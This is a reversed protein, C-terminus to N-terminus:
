LIKDDCNRELYPLPHPLAAIFVQLGALLQERQLQSLQAAATALRHTDLVELAQSLAQQGPPSLWILTKRGDMDDPQRTLLGDGELVAVKASLTSLARGFHQAMESLTLPGTQGLHLLLATTEPSLQARADDVRKVAMRYLERYLQNFQLAFDQTDMRRIISHLPHKAYDSADPPLYAWPSAYM